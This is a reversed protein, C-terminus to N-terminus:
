SNLSISFYIMGADYILRHNGKLGKSKLEQSFPLDKVKGNFVKEVSNLEIKLVFEKFLSKLERYVDAQNALEVFIQNISKGSSHNPYHKCWDMWDSSDASALAIRINWTGAPEIRYLPGVFLTHFQNKEWDRFIEDFIKRHLPLQEIFPYSCKVGIPQRTRLTIKKNNRDVSVEWCISCGDKELSYTGIKEVYLNNSNKISKIVNGSNSIDSNCPTNNGAVAMNFAIFLLGMCSLFIKRRM